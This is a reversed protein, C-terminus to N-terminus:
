SSDAWSSMAQAWFLERLKLCMANDNLVTFFVLVHSAYLRPFVVPRDGPDGSACENLTDKYDAEGFDKFPQPL